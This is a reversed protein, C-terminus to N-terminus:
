CCFRTNTKGQHLCFGLKSTWGNRLILKLLLSHKTGSFLALRPFLPVCRGLRTQVRRVCGGKVLFCHGTTEQILIGRSIVNWRKNVEPFSPEQTESCLSSSLRPTVNTQCPLDTDTIFYCHLSVSLENNSTGDPPFLFWLSQSVTKYAWWHTLNYM